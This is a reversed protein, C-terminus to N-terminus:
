KKCPDDNPNVYQISWPGMGHFQLVTVGKTWVFHKMGAPWYGYAGAVRPRTATEDFRDGMGLNFTGSLVTVRETKPHTHPPVRYGDPLELRFGFPEDKGPERRARRDQRGESPYRPTSGPAAGRSGFPALLLWPFALLFLLLVLSLSCFFLDLIQLRLRLLFGRMGPLNDFRM